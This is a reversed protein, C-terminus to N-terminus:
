GQVMKSSFVKRYTDCREQIVAGGIRWEGGGGGALLDGEWTLRSKSREGSVGQERGGNV